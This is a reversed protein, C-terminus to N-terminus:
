FDHGDLGSEGRQFEEEGVFRAQSGESYHAGGWFDVRGRTPKGGGELCLRQM